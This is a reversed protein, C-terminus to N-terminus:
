AGMGEQQDAVGAAAARLKKMAEAYPVAEFATFDHFSRLPILKDEDDTGSYHLWLAEFNLAPLRFLRAEARDQGAIALAKGLARPFLELYPNTASMQQTEPHDPNSIDFFARPTEKELEFVRVGSEQPAPNDSRLDELGLTYIRHALGLSRTGADRAVDARIADVGLGAKVNLLARENWIHRIVEENLLLPPIIMIDIHSKTFYTDTWSGSGQYNSSFTSVTIHSKGYIPDDIDFYRTLGVISYGYIVMFHGGGGSWGVRAGVPRGADIEATVEEFSVVGTNSVLNQTRQLAKSLYWTANCADPVVSNCCDTRGLEASAVKCQTWASLFWYFLSVSTATAAWCWNSQTQAQMDFALTRSIILRGLIEVEQLLSRYPRATALAYASINM